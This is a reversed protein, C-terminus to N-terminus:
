RFGQSNWLCQTFYYACSLAHLNLPPPTVGKPSTCVENFFEHWYCTTKSTFTPSFTVWQPATLNTLIQNHSCARHIIWQSLRVPPLPSWMLVQRSFFLGACDDATHSVAATNVLVSLMLLILLILSFIQFSIFIVSITCTSHCFCIVHCTDTSDM